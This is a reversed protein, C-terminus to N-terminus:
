ARCHSLRLESRAVELEGVKETPLPTGSETKLKRLRTRQGNLNEQARTWAARAITMAADSGGGARKALAATDFEARAEVLTAEASAVEDEVIRRNEARGAGKQNRVRERIAVQARATAARAQAEEEDVRLLPEGTVVTYPRCGAGLDQNRKLGARGRRSRRSAM